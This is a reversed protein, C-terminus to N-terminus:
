AGMSRRWRLLRRKAFLPLDFGGPGRPAFQTAEAGGEAYGIQAIDRRLWYGVTDVTLDRIEPPVAAFGWEGEIDLSAFGWWQMTTSTGLNVDGRVIIGLANGNRLRAPWLQFQIPDLVTPSTTESNLTVTKAVRLECADGFNVLYGGKRNRYSQADVPFRRTVEAGLMGTSTFERGTEGVILASASEIRTRILDDRTREDDDLELAERVDALSCLAWAQPAHELVRVSFEATDQPEMGTPTAHWWALYDGPTDTDGAAWDYRVSGTPADVLSAVSDVVLTSGSEPRMRFTVADLAVPDGDIRITDEVAPALADKIIEFM